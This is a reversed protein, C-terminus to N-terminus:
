QQECALFQGLMEREANTPQAHVPGSLDPMSTNMANPGAAAEADIDAAHKRVDEETDYNQDSPAGHRDTATASHCSICYTEMFERGFTDYTPVNTPDPPCTSGSPTSACATTAVFLLALLRSM